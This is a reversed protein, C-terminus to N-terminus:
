LLWEPPTTVTKDMIPLVWGPEARSKTEQGEAWGHQDEYPQRQDQHDRREGNSM